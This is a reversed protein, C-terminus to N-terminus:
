RVWYTVGDFEIASYDQRLEAAAREWDICSMPWSANHDIAGIDEALEQAYTQFYSDRVMVEGHQWDAAYDSGESALDKLSELEARDEDSVEYAPTECGYVISRLEAIRDLVDRSDIIDDSNSIPRSM